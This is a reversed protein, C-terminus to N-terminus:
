PVEVRETGAVAGGESALTRVGGRPANGLELDKLSRCLRPPRTVTDLLQIEGLCSFDWSGQQKRPGAPPGPM